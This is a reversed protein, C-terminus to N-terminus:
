NQKWAESSAEFTFLDFDAFVLARAFDVILVNTGSSTAPGDEPGEEAFVLDCAAFFAGFHVVVRM